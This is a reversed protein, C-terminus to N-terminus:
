EWAGSAIAGSLTVHRWDEEGCVGEGGVRRSGYECVLVGGAADDGKGLTGGEGKCDDGVGQARGVGEEEAEVGDVDQEAGTGFELVEVGVM